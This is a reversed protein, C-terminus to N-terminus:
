NREEPREHFLLVHIKVMPFSVVIFSIEALKTEKERGFTSGKM